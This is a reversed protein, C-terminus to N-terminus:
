PFCASRVSDSFGPWLGVSWTDFARDSLAVCGLGTGPDLWMMCGSAGFHGITDAPAGLGSWHPSKTGRIEPGLGWDCPDQRGWGPLVGALAPFQAGKAVAATGRSILTPSRMEEMFVLLDALNSTAGSAPSGELSTASMALPELVGEHLYEAFSLGSKTELHGALVEYGANSYIRREGPAALPRQSDFDLGSAHSMLHRVTSGTPGAPEDLDITREEIAILCCWATLLKTISAVPFRHDIDGHTALVGTGDSAASCSTDAGWAEVAALASAITSRDGDVPQTRSM